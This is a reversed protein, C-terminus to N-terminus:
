ETIDDLGVCYKQILTADAVNVAGDSNVDASSVESASLDALGVSYKQIETADAVNIFGDSNVDGKLNLSIFTISNNNAYAQATSDAYGSITLTDSKEVINRGLTTERGLITINKLSECYNFANNKISEVNEPVTVDTLSSCNYFAYLGITKVNSGIILSTLASCGQFARDGITEVKNPIEISAVSSCDYFTGYEISTLNEPLHIKEASMCNFFAGEGLTTVADPINIEALSFCGDFAYSKIETLLEPFSVKEVKANVFAYDSITKVTAPIKYATDEKGQPYKILTTKDRNFLVGNKSSYYINETPVSIEGLNVCELTNLTKTNESLTISKLYENYIYSVAEVTSPVTYSTSTKKPPYVLLETKDKNFLVGDSSSYVSNKSDVTIKELSSYDLPQFALEGIETVSKSIAITKINYSMYFASDMITTVSDPITVNVISANNGFAASAIVTVKYKNLTSPIVLDADKGTYGTIRATGNSLLEFKYNGSKLTEGVAETGIIVASASLSMASIISFTMIMSLLISVAKRFIKM